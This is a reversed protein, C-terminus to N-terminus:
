LTNPVLTIRMNLVIILFISIRNVMLNVGPNFGDLQCMGVYM